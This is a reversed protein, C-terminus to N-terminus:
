MFNIKKDVVITIYNKPDNWSQKLSCLNDCHDDTLNALATAWFEEVFVMLNPNM